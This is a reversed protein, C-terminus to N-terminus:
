EAGRIFDDEMGAEGLGDEVDDDMREGRFASMDIRGSSVMQNMNDVLDPISGTEEDYSGSKETDGSEVLARRGLAEDALTQSQEESDDQSANHAEPPLNEDENM